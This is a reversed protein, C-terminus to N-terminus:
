HGPYVAAIIIVFLVGKAVELWGTVRLRSKYLTAAFVLNEALPILAVLPLALLHYVSAALAVYAVMLIRYAKRRTLQARVKFVGAAFFASVALYLRVDVHGVAALEAFPASVSLLFFGTIETLMFHEGKFRFFFLYAAPVILFPLVTMLSHRAAAAILLTAISIQSLFVALSMRSDLGRGRLYQTLAQKSNVFLVTATLVAIVAPSFRGAATLGAAFSLLM